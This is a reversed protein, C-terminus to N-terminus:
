KLLVDGRGGGDDCGELSGAIGLGWDDELHGLTTGCVEGSLYPSLAKSKKLEPSIACYPTALSLCCAEM